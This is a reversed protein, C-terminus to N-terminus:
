RGGGLQDVASEPIQLVVFEAQDALGQALPLDQQPGGGM